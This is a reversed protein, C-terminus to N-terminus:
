NLYPQLILLMLDIGRQMQEDTAPQGQLDLATLWSETLLWLLDALRAITEENLSAVLVGAAKLAAILERFGAYGRERVVAYTERLLPDHRLLAPLERYVFAYRWTVVFNQRVWTQVDDLTPPHDAQAEFMQGTLTFLQDCIARIIEEKNRFHYYLNGPSIGAAEAIHNTSIQATGERNFLDVAAALIREKTKM